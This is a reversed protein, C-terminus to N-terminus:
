ENFTIFSSNINKLSSFGFNEISSKKFISAGYEIRLMKKVAM